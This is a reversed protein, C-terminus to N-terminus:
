TESGARLSKSMNIGTSRFGIQEYLSRAAANHAFVHLSIRTVGTQRFREELALLAQRGYGSRRYEAFIEFDCIFVSPAGASPDRLYWIMGVISGLEDDMINLLFHNETDLGAPLLKRFGIAAREPAVEPDWAGAKVNEEAHRPVTQSAYAQFDNESM